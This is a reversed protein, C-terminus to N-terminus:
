DNHLLKCSPMQISLYRATRSIKLYSYSIPDFINSFQHLTLNQLVFDDIKCSSRNLVAYKCYQWFLMKGYEMIWQLDITSM